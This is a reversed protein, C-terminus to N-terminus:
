VYTYMHLNLLMTGLFQMNICTPVAVQQSKTQLLCELVIWIHLRNNQRCDFRNTLLGTSSSLSVSQGIEPYHQIKALRTFLSEKEMNYLLKMNM